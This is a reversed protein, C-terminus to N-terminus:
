ISYHISRVQITLDGGASTQYEIDQGPCAMDTSVTCKDNIPLTGATFGDPRIIASGNTSGNLIFNFTARESNQPVVASVPVQTFAPGLATGNSLVEFPANAVDTNYEITRDNARGHQKFDIIDLSTDNIVHGLLQQVDYGGTLSPATDNTSLILDVALTGAADQILYLYYITDAAESGTDLGGPGSLTIDCILPSTVTLIKVFSDDVTFGKGIQVTSVDPRTLILGATNGIFLTAAPVTSLDGKGDTIFFSDNVPPTVTSFVSLFGALDSALVGAEASLTLVWKAVGETNDTLTYEADAATDVWQSGIGYGKTIDDTVAPPVTEATFRSPIIGVFPGEHAAVIGNLLLVDAGSIVGVFDFQYTPDANDNIWGASKHGSRLTTSLVIRAIEERLVDADVNAGALASFESLLYTEITM